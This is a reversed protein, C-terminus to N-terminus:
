CSLVLFSSDHSAVASATFSATFTGLDKRQWVDRIACSGSGAVLGPVDTFDFSLDATASDTNVLLVAVKTRDWAMPKYFNSMAGPVESRSSFCLNDGNRITGGAVLFQQNNVPLHCGYIQLAPGGPPGNGAWVDICQGPMGAPLFATPNATSNHAFQQSEAGSCAKLMLQDTSTDDVCQSNFTIAQSSASYGWGQQTADSGSCPLALVFAGPQVPGASKKFSSGSFGFYNQNIALVEPNAIVPWIFDTITDNNVDHSLTLPSSVIAWSGFHTRTEEITLGPDGAGHPGHACGVELM